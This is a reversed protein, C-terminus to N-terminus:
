RVSQLAAIEVKSGRTNVASPKFDFDLIHSLTTVGMSRTKCSRRPLSDGLWVMARWRIARIVDEEHAIADEAFNYAAINWRLLNIFIALEKGEEIDEGSISTM